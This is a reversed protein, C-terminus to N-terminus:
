NKSCNRAIHGKTQCKYCVRGEPKTRVMQCDRALHGPKDCKFCKLVRRPAQIPTHDRKFSSEKEHRARNPSKSGRRSSDSSFGRSERGKFSMNIQKEERQEKLFREAEKAIEIAVSLTDPKQSIVLKKIDSNIGKWFIKLVQNQRVEQDLDCKFALWQLKQAYDIVTESDKQKRTCFENLFNREVKFEKLIAEKIAKYNTKNNGMNKWVLLATEDLYSPLRQGCIADTWADANALREFTDFWDEIDEESGTLKDITIKSGIRLSQTQSTLHQVTQSSGAQGTHTVGLTTGLVLDDKLDQFDHREVFIDLNEVVALFAVEHKDMLKNNDRGFQFYEETVVAIDEFKFDAHTKKIENFCTGHNQKWTNFANNTYQVPPNKRAYHTMSRLVSKFNQHTNDDM